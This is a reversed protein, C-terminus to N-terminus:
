LQNEGLWFSIITCQRHLHIVAVPLENLAVPYLVVVYEAGVLAADAVKFDLEILDSARRSYHFPGPM